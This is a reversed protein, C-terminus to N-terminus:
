VGYMYKVVAVLRFLARSEGVGVRSVCRVAFGVGDGHWVCVCVCLFVCVRYVRVHVLHHFISYFVSAFSSWFFVRTESELHFSFNQIHASSFLSRWLNSAGM